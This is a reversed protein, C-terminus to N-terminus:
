EERYPNVIGMPNVEKLETHGTATFGEECNIRKKIIELMDELQRQTMVIFNDGVTFQISHGGRWGGVVATLSMDESDPFWEKDSEYVRITESM